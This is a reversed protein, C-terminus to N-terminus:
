TEIMDCISDAPYPQHYQNQPLFADFVQIDDTLDGMIAGHDGHSYPCRIILSFQLRVVYLLVSLNVMVALDYLIVAESDRVMGKDKVAPYLYKVM